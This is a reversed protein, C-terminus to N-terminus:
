ITLEMIANVIDNSNKRLARIAANRNVNAQEMVMQIDKGDIGTEDEPPSADSATNANDDGEVIVADKGTDIPKNGAPNASALEQSKLHLHQRTAMEQAQVARQYAAPDQVQATGFVVFQDSNPVKYVIPNDIAFIMRGRRFTVRTVGAAPQLNHKSLIKQAKRQNRSAAQQKPLSAAQQASFAGPIDSKLDNHSSEDQAISSVSSADDEDTVEEFHVQKGEAIASM